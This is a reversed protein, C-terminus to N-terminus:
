EPAGHDLFPKIRAWIMDRDDSQQSRSSSISDDHLPAGTMVINCVHDITEDQGEDLESVKQWAPEGRYWAPQKVLPFPWSQRYYWVYAFRWAAAAIDKASEVSDNSEFNQLQTAYADPTTASLMFDCNALWNTGVRVVSKGLAAMELGITSYWILGLEAEAALSYSSIQSASPVVIVNPPCRDPLAEFYAVDQPNQGLSEGSAVNPHVRIVLQVDPRSKAFALTADIWAYQDEFAGGSRPEDITEDLSSTFLAWVPRSPDLGLAATASNQLGTSFVSVDKSTGRWRDELLAGLTRVEHETLPQNRWLDWLEDVASLDLCNVNDFLTIRGFVQSREECLTRIGKDKALELAVRTPGMRGNFLLQVDPKEEEFLRDLALAALLGSYLYSGYVPMVDPAEPDIVNYRFHTHVSSAMWAGIAWGGYTATPYDKPLLGAVWTSATEFDESSLWRGLWRYPMGWAALRAAVSSQCVLCSDAQRGHPAGNSKQYLDCDSFVGDCTVYSVTAGRQKLAHLITVQRASHISWDTYPAFCIIHPSPRAM